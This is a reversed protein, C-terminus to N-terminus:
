GLEEIVINENTYICISAAIRLAERAITPADLSTFRMLAKAAAVAYPGGSGIALVPEDPEIVEGTGSVLLLHSKDMCLLMAQLQRLIRDTRWEKALEVAARLLDGRTEELHGELKDFLTFADGVSGAFGAIVSDKYIKRVKRASAKIITHNAELTVQGDGAMASKGNVRVALVTTSLFQPRLKEKM